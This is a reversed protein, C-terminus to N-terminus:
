YIRIQFEPFDVELQKLFSLSVQLGRGAGGGLVISHCLRKHAHEPHPTPHSTPHPPEKEKGVNKKDWLTSSFNSM